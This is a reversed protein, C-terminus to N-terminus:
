MEGMACPEDSAWDPEVFDDFDDEVLALGGERAGPLPAAGPCVAAKPKPSPMGVAGRALASAPVDWTITPFAKEFHARCKPLRPVVFCRLVKRTVHGGYPESIQVSRRAIRTVPPMLKMITKSFSQQSGARHTRAMSTREVYRQYLLDTGICNGNIEEGWGDHFDIARGEELCEYWFQEVASMSFVQQEALAETVPAVHPDVGCANLDFNQLEYLLAEYGGNEMQDLLARFYARDQLHENSMNFVAFRRENRGAPVVWYDNGAIVLHMVNPVTYAPLYKEEVIIRDETILTKLRSEAKKDGAWFSEDAYVLPRNQLIRNFRGTLVDPSTLHLFHQGLLKGIIQAFVGKGTGREGRLVLAVSARLEPHQILAALWARIWLTLQADGQAINDHVHQWFLDCDGPLPDFGFGTFTNFYVLEEDPTLGKPWFVQCHYSRRGPDSIWALGTEAKARTGEKPNDTFPMNAVNNRFQRVTIFRYTWDKTDPDHYEHLVAGVDEMYAYIQNIEDVLQDRTPLGSEPAADAAPESREDVSAVTEIEETEKSDEATNTAEPRTSNCM